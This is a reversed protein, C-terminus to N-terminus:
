ATPSPLTETLTVPPVVFDWVAGTRHYTTTCTPCTARDAWWVLDGRCRPCVLREALGQWGEPTTSSTYRARDVAGEASGVPSSSGQRTAWLFQSPGWWGRGARQLVLEGIRVGPSLLQRLWSWPLAHEWRRFNNVSAAVETNWGLEILRHRIAALNFNWYPVMPSGLSKPELGDLEHWRRHLTARARALLHNKVPVDIVWEDALVRGMEALAADVLTLHHLVRVAAGADFARDRFPLRYLDCRVLSIRTGVQDSGNRLLRQEAARLNTWSYDAVVVNQAHRLYLPVNRGFGGGLDIFWAVPEVRRMLRTLVRSEAWHEHDRGRWYDQYDYGGRDYAIERIM